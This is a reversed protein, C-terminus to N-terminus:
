SINRRAYDFASHIAWIPTLEPAGGYNKTINFEGNPSIVNIELIYKDDGPYLNISLYVTLNSDSRAVNEMSNKRKSFVVEEPLNAQLYKEGEDGLGSYRINLRWGKEHIQNFLIKLLNDQDRGFIHKGLRSQIEEAIPNILEDAEQESDAKATIRIQTIGPYAALGVTPNSMEEFESIMADVISEGIGAALLNVAKIIKSLQFKKRLIDLVAHNFLYKMESPVGPLSIIIGHQTEYYFAPATGVPNHIPNANDPLFAQRKNNDTPTQGYAKFRELIQQWLDPDFHTRENVAAAVAERTPDDITPGLGGTTIVIDSRKLAEIIIETIREPNDGIISARYLDIGEKRLTKAIFQTNTDLIEGLLLETGIAIIEATPM